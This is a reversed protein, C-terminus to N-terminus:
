KTKREFYYVERKFGKFGLLNFGNNEQHSIQEFADLIEKPAYGTDQSIDEAIAVACLYTGHSLGKLYKNVADEVSGM